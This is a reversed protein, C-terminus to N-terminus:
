RRIARNPQAYEKQSYNLSLRLCHRAQGRDAPQYRCDALEFPEWYVSSCRRGGCLTMIAGPIPPWGHRALRRLPASKTFVRDRIFTSAHIPPWFRRLLDAPSRSPQYGCYDGAAFSSHHSRNQHWYFHVSFPPACFISLRYCTNRAFVIVWPGAILTGAVNFAGIIFLGTAGVSAPLGCLNVSGPLHTAIFPSMFDASLFGLTLFWFGSHSMAERITQTLSLGGTAVVSKGKM